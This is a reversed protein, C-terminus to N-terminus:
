RASPAPAGPPVDNVDITVKDGEVKVQAWQRDGAKDDKYGVHSHRKLAEEFHHPENIFDGLEDLYVQTGLTVDGELPVERNPSFSIGGFGEKDRGFDKLRGKDFSKAWGNFEEAFSRLIGARVHDVSVEYTPKIPERREPFSPQSPETPESM